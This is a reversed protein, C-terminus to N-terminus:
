RILFVVSQHLRTVERQERHIYSPVDLAADSDGAMDTRMALLGDSTDIESNSRGSESSAGTWGVSFASRRRAAAAAAAVLSEAESVIRLIFLSDMTLPLAHQMVSSSLLRIIWASAVDDTWGGHEDWADVVPKVVAEEAVSLLDDKETVSPRVRDRETPSRCHLWTRATIAQYVRSRRM